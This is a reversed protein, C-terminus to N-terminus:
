PWFGLAGSSFPHKYPGPGLLLRSTCGLHQRKLPEMNRLDACSGEYLQLKQGVTEDPPGASNVDSGVQGCQEWSM